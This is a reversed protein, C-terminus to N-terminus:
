CDNVERHNKRSTSRTTTLLSSWTGSASHTRSRTRERVSQAAMGSAPRGQSAQYRLLQADDTIFVLDEEGTRLEIAGVLRDRDKLTIVE